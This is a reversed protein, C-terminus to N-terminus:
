LDVLRGMAEDINRFQGSAVMALIHLGNMTDDVTPSLRDPIGFGDATLQRLLPVKHAIGGSFVIGSLEDAGPLRSAQAKYDAAMQGFAARFLHGLTLNEETIETVAGGGSRNRRNQFFSMDIKLDTSDIEEVAEQVLTWPDAVPTGARSALETLLQLLVNLSRGAPIHTVTHLFRGEFYPRVQYDGANFERCVVSVQSGTAVNVSLEGERLLSGLLACQHDGVPAPCSLMTGKFNLHYCDRLEDPELVVRPLRFRILGAVELAVDSWAGQEVDFLGYSAANTVDVIAPQQSLRSLVYDPLSVVHLEEDPLGGEQALWALTSIPVGPRLENGLRMRLEPSLREQLWEAYSMGGQGSASGAEIMRFSGRQDQWTIANSRPEGRANTLVIGHMQTCMVLGQAGPAVELLRDLMVSVADCLADPSIEFCGAPTSALREPTPMRQSAECSGQALDLVAGKLFSSGLDIALYRMTPQGCVIGM